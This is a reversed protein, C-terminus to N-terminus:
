DWGPRRLTIGRGMGQVARGRDAGITGAVLAGPLKGRQEALDAPKRYSQEQTEAALTQNMAQEKGSV